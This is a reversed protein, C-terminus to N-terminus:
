AAARAPLFRSNRLLAASILSVIVGVWIMEVFTIGVRMVPNSYMEAFGAQEEAIKALKAADAGAAREADIMAGYYYTPFDFGTGALYVEWGIIWGFTAVVSIGLGLGFAPLFKIVGGNNRDRHQKVGLFVMTLALLISAYGIVASESPPGGGEQFTFLFAIWPIFVIVAGIVGYILIIPLM